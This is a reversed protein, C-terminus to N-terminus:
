FHLQLFDTIIFLFLLFTIVFPVVYNPTTRKTLKPTIKFIDKKYYCTKITDIGKLVALINSFVYTIVVISAIKDFSYIESLFKFNNISLVSPLINLVILISVSFLICFIRNNIFLNQLLSINLKESKLNIKLIAVLSYISFIAFACIFLLNSCAKIDKTFLVYILYFSCNLYTINALFKVLNKTKIINIASTIMISLIFVLLTISFIENTINIDQSLKIFSLVGLYPLFGFLLISYSLNNKTHRNSLYNYIPFLGAKLLLACAMCVQIIALQLEEKVLFSFLYFSYFLITSTASMLVFDISYTEYKRINANSAFKYIFFSSLDLLLFALIGNQIKILISVVLGLLLLSSNMITSMFNAKKTLKYTCLIFCALFAFILFEFFFTTNDFVLNQKFFALNFEEFTIKNKIFIGIAILSNIAFISFTALDSIKKIAYIKIKSFLFIIINILVGLLCFIEISFYSLLEIKTIDYTQLIEEM